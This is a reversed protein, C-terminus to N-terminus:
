QVKWFEVGLRRPIGLFGKMGPTRLQPKMRGQNKKWMKRQMGERVRKQREEQEKKEQNKNDFELLSVLSVQLKRCFNRGKALLSESLERWQWIFFSLLVTFVICLITKVHSHEPNWPIKEVLGLLLGVKAIKVAADQANSSETPLEEGVCNCGGSDGKTEPGDTEYTTEKESDVVEEHAASVLFSLAKWFRRWTAMQTVPKTLLDAVLTSGKQHRIKWEDPYNKLKEKLYNARLRLHRTRWPGDPKEIISITSANDGYLVKEHVREEYMVKLLAEVSQTMSMGEIAAMLESEATSLTHFSQRNAEWQVPAGAFFVLIGQYSRNGNPAFSIDTYAELLAEHRPIQLIGDHGHGGVESPYLLCHDWTHKLFGLVHNGLQCVWKPRKTVQQGMISVAFAIDPRTRVSAWLLEGVVMQAARIQQPTIDEEPSGETDWKPMPTIKESVEGHRQLLEKIYSIQSLKISTGDDGLSIEIGSFRTWRGKEVHDAPACTWETGLRKLFSMRIEPPGLVMLDDVYVLVQGVMKGADAGDLNVIKWLNGEPTQQIGVRGKETKWEFTKMTEDRFKAWCAPSSPLGYLAKLIKWRENAGCVGAEVLVKPPVVVVERQQPAAVRPALLFATKIDTTSCGWKMLSAHRLVTRILTGDAGSAYVGIPSPDSEMMNGCIVGRCKKKGGKGDAKVVCVLKGPVFEVQQPDLTRVDVPLVAETERTLSEYEAKMAPIWSSLDKRVDSLAMTVTQLVEKPEPDPESDEDNNLGVACLRM